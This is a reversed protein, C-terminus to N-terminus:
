IAKSTHPVDLCTAQYSMEQLFRLHFTQKRCKSGNGHEHDGHRGNGTNDIETAPLVVVVGPTALVHHEAVVGLAGPKQKAAGGGPTTLAAIGIGLHAVHQRAVVSVLDLPPDGVDAVAAVHADADRVQPVFGGAGAIQVAAPM